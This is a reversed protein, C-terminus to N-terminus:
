KHKPLLIQPVEIVGAPKRLPVSGAGLKDNEKGKGMLAEKHHRSPTDLSSIGKSAWHPAVDSPLYRPVLGSISSDHASTTSAPNDLRHEVKQSALSLQYASSSKPSSHSESSATKQSFSFRTPSSPSDFGRWNPTTHTIHPSLYLHDSNQTSPFTHSDSQTAGFSNREVQGRGEM